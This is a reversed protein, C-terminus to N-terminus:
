LRQDEDKGLALRMRLHETGAEMFVDGEGKYGFLEYFGTVAIQAHLYCSDYGQVMSWEKAAEMLARGIGQGRLDSRVAVRGIKIDRPVGPLLYLRLTGIVQSNQVAVLHQATSDHEDTEIERDRELEDLFIRRRLEYMEAFEDPFEPSRIILSMNGM